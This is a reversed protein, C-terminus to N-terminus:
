GSLPSSYQVFFDKKKKKKQSTENPQQGLLSQMWFTKPWSASWVGLTQRTKVLTSFNSHIQCSFFHLNV